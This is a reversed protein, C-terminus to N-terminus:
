GHSKQQMKAKEWHLVLNYNNIEWNVRSNMKKVPHFFNQTRIMAPLWPNVGRMVSSDPWVTKLSAYVSYIEKLLMVSKREFPLSWLSQRFVRRRLTGMM